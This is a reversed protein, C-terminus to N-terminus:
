ACGCECNQTATGSDLYTDANSKTVKVFREDTLSKIIQSLEMPEKGIYYVDIKDKNLESFPGNGMYSYVVCKINWKKLMKATKIGNGSEKNLIFFFTDEKPKYIAFMKVNGFLKSSKVDTSVSDVPIAIM